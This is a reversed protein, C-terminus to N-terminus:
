EVSAARAKEIFAVITSVSRFIPRSEDGEPIKIGFHEELAMALQLADLSDLGLGDGFLQIDDDIDDPRTDQLNLERIIVEKVQAALPSSM